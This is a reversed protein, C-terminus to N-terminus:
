RVTSAFRIGRSTAGPFSRVVGEAILCSVPLFSLNAACGRKIEAPPHSREDHFILWPGEPVSWGQRLGRCVDHVLM